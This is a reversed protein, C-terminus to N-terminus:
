MFFRGAELRYEVQAFIKSASLRQDGRLWDDLCWGSLSLAFIKSASLRQDGLLGDVRNIGADCLHLFRQHRFANIVERLRLFRVDVFHAFIKSASLRQDRSVKLRALRTWALHLFRQHRFANIVLYSDSCVNKM